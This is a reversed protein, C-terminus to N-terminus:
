RAPASTSSRTTAFLEIVRHGLDVLNEFDEETELKM